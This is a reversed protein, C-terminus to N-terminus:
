AVEISNQAQLMVALKADFTRAGYDISFSNLRSLLDIGIIMAPEGNLGWLDFVPADVAMCTSDQITLIGMDVKPLYVLQGPVGQGTVGYIWANDFRKLRPYHNLLAENLSHNAISNKAGTDLMMRTPINGVRGSIEALLGNRVRINGSSRVRSQRKSPEIFVVKDPINFMLRHGAFIDGGLIGDERKLRRNPLVAVPLRTKEVVGAQFGDLEVLPMMASGTAGVVLVQGLAAAGLTEVHREAIVTTTSGTDVLFRFPGRDNISVEVTPRGYIDVWSDVRYDAEEEPTPTIQTATQSGARQANAPAALGLSPLAGLLWRRTLRAM